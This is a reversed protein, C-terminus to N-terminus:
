YGKFIRKGIEEGDDNFIKTKAERISEYKMEVSIYTTKVNQPLVSFRHTLELIKGVSEDNSRKATQLDKNSKTVDLIFVANDPEIQVEAKGLVTILPLKEIEQASSVFSSFIFVLAPLVFQKMSISRTQQVFFRIIPILGCRGDKSLKDSPLRVNHYPLGCNDSLGM